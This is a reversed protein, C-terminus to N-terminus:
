EVVTEYSTSIGILKVRHGDGSTVEIRVDCTNSGDFEVSQPGADLSVGDITIPISDANTLSVRREWQTSVVREECSCGNSCSVAITGYGSWSHLTSVLITVGKVKGFPKGLSQRVVIYAGKKTAVYGPKHATRGSEEREVYTWDPSEDVIPPWAFFGSSEIDDVVDGGHTLTEKGFEYCKSVIQATKSSSLMPPLKGPAADKPPSVADDRASWYASSVYRGQEDSDRAEVSVFTFPAYSTLPKRGGEDAYALRTADIAMRLGNVFYSGVIRTANPQTPHLGDRTWDLLAFPASEDQTSDRMVDFMGRRLNVVPIGYHESLREYVDLVPHYRTYADRIASKMAEKPPVDLNYGKFILSDPLERCLQRTAAFSGESSVKAFRPSCWNQAHVIMFAPMNRKEESGEIIQKRQTLQHMITELEHTLRALHVEAVSGEDMLELTASFEFIFLDVNESDPLWKDLCSAFSHIGGGPRAINIWEHSVNPNNYLPEVKSLDVPYTEELWDIAPRLWERAESPPAYMGAGCCVDRKGVVECMHRLPRATSTCGGHVGMVSSGLAVISLRERADLKRVLERWGESVTSISTADFLAKDVRRTWSGSRRRDDVAPALVATESRARKEYRAPSTATTSTRTRTKVASASALAGRSLVSLAVFVVVATADVVRARSFSARSSSRGTCGSADDRKTEAM